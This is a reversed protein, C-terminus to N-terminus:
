QTPFYDESERKFGAPRVYEAVIVSTLANFLL